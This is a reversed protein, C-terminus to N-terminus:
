DCGERPAHISVVILWRHRTVGEGDCGERPAHISVDHIQQTPRKALDCGERPAHISVSKTYCNSLASCRRVGGPTRSNFSQHALHHVRSSTTAGRGPHTFQFMREGQDAYAYVRTAGRGPHTFQFLEVPPTDNLVHPRVGGPTRSNFSCQQLQQTQSDDDCGERPAHISVGKGRPLETHDGRDCGERPAHISVSRRCRRSDRAMDCGERPAHISVKYRDCFHSWYRTAGRGPHTFQFKLNERHKDVEELDCGERPAHISVARTSVDRFALLLRM